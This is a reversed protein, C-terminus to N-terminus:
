WQRKRQNDIMRYLEKEIYNNKKETKTTQLVVENVHDELCGIVDIDVSECAKPARPWLIWPQSIGPRASQFIKLGDAQCRGM